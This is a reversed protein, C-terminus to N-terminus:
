MNTIGCIPSKFTARLLCMHGQHFEQNRASDGQEKLTRKLQTSSSSIYPNSCVKPDQLASERTHTKCHNGRSLWSWLSVWTPPSTPLINEWAQHTHTALLDYLLMATSEIVSLTKPSYVKLNRQCWETELVHRLVKRHVSYVISMM